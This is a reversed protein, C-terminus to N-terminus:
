GRRGFAHRRRSRQARLKLQDREDSTIERPATVQWMSSHGAGVLMCSWVTGYETEGPGFQEQLWARLVNELVDYKIATTYAM